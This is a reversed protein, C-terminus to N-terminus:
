STSGKIFAHPPADGRDVLRAADSAIKICPDRLLARFGEQEFHRDSTLVETLGERRMTQMSICDTLSYGKDPRSQFLDLGAIFSERSQPIVRIDPNILLRRVTVAARGRQWPDTSFFTTKFRGINPTPHCGVVCLLIRTKTRFQNLRLNFARGASRFSQCLLTVPPGERWGHNEKDCQWLRFVVDFRPSGAPGRAV